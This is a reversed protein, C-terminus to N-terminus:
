VIGKKGIHITVQVVIHHQVTGLIETLESNEFTNM